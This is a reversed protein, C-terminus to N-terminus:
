GGPACVTDSRTSAPYASAQCDSCKCYARPSFYGTGFQRSQSIALNLTLRISLVAFKRRGFSIPGAEAGLLLSLRRQSNRNGAELHSTSAHNLHFSDPRKTSINVLEPMVFSLPGSVFVGADRYPACVVSELSRPVSAGQQRLLRVSTSYRLSDTHHSPLTSRRLPSEFAIIMRTTLDTRDWRKTCIPTLLLDLQTRASPASSDLLGVIWCDAILADLQTTYAPVCSLDRLMFPDIYRRSLASSLLRM